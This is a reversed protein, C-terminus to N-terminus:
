AVFLRTPQQIESQVIFPTYQMRQPTHAYSTCDIYGRNSKDGTANARSVFKCDPLDRNRNGCPESKLFAPPLGLFLTRPGRSSCSVRASSCCWCWCWLCCWRRTTQNYRGRATYSCICYAKRAEDLNCCPSKTNTTGTTHSTM